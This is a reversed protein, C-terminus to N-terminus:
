TTVTVTAQDTATIAAAPSSSSTVTASTQDTGFVQAARTDTATIAAAATDTSTVTYPPVPIIVNGTLTSQGVAYSAPISYATLTQAPALLTFGVAQGSTVGTPALTVAGPTLTAQGVGGVTDVGAPALTYSTTLTPNGVAQGSAAGVPNVTQTAASSVSSQGVVEGTGIGAPSLTVAGPTLTAQGVASGDAIGAPALAVSLASQGPTVSGDIGAPSLTYSATLATNGVAESDVIGAPALTYSATLTSQGVLDQDDFAAPSLTQTAIVAAAAASPIQRHKFHRQWTKAPQTPALPAPVAAPTVEIAISGARSANTWTSSGATDTGAFYQTELAATTITTVDALETWSARPTQADTNQIANAFYCSNGARMTQTFACSQTTVTSTSIVGNINGAVIASGGDGSSIDVNADSQDIIWSIKDISTGAFDITVAGTSPAAAMGRFVFLTTRDTGAEDVDQAKVLTYTIGNGTVAPVNPQTSGTARYANIVVFILRSGTPTISATTFSTAATTAGGSILNAFTPAPM